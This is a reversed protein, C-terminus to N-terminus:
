RKEAAGERLIALLATEEPYLGSTPTDAARVLARQVQEFLTGATYADLVAPHIYYNRCTAPRNGLCAAAEKVAEVINKKAESESQAPGAEYLAMAALLTGGWTRFEKASFETGTVERLYENVDGSDIAQRQGEEDLYQFLEYGPIDRCRKVIGALRRDQLAIRQEQGSKGRFHFHITSGSVNVHRDRLTTLGFSHNARAYEKNGIRVCTTELLRVATALVKQRPLGRLALDEEVRERIRPLSEGFPILHHYKTQGRHESWQAHYRYQKRGKGDRGTAQLHGNPLACIWVDSWAPPIVLAEIREREAPDDIIQGAPDIYSFGKGRRQRRIGPQEDSVYRLGAAKAANVPNIITV